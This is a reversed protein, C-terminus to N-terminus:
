RVPKKTLTYEDTGGYYRYTVTTPDVVLYRIASDDEEFLEYKFFDDVSACAVETLRMHEEFSTNMVDYASIDRMLYYCVTGNELLIGIAITGGM